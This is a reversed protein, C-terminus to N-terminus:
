SARRATVRFRAKGQVQRALRFGAWLARLIVEAAVIDLLVTRGLTSLRQGEARGPPVFQFHVTHQGPQLPVGRVIGNTRVISAPRGDVEAQWGPYDVDGLVLLGPVSLKATLSLSNSGYATIQVASPSTTTANLTLHPDEVVAMRRLDISKLLDLAVEHDPAYITQEVVYARPLRVKEDLEYLYKQGDQRLLHLRPDDIKRTTVVYRVGLVQWRVLEPVKATFDAYDRTELPTNGVVDQLRFLSGANGDGPLLGESAIRYLGSTYNELYDAIPSSAVLRDPDGPQLNNQWNTSFLDLWILLVAFLGAVAPRLVRRQRTLLLAVGLSLILGSFVARDLLSLLRSQTDGAAGAYQVAALVGFGVIASVAGISVRRLWGLALDRAHSLEAAGYGALVAVCLDVLFVSREYQRFKLPGLLLYSIQQLFTNGGFSLILSLVALGAWFLKNSRRTPTSLGVAVLLLTFIGNYLPTGGFGSPLVLGLAEHLAFGTSSFAYSVNTRDTLQLHLYAPILAEAALALGGVFLIPLGVITTWRIRGHGWSKYLLYLGSALGVYALTQPHGALAALSLGVAGAVFASVVGYEAGVDICLLILPLWVSADLLNAQQIPFGSLYGGFAFVIASALGGIRSGSLRRVLLYTFLCAAAVHGVIEMELLRVPFSAGGLQALWTDPPYLIRFQIDGIASHGGSMFPDWYPDEGRALQEAVWRRFPYNLDTFDGTPFTAADLPDPTLIRWYFLPALLVSVCPTLLELGAQWLAIPVRRAIHQLRGRLGGLRKLQGSM